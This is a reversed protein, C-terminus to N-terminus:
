FHSYLNHSILFTQRIQRTHAKPKIWVRPDKKINKAYLFLNEILTHRFIDETTNSIIILNYKYVNHNSLWNFDNDNTDILSYFSKSKMLSKDWYYHLLLTTTIYCYYLLLTTIIYWYHILLKTVNVNHNCEFFIGNWTM